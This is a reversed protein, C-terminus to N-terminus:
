KSVNPQGGFPKTMSLSSMGANLTHNPVKIHKYENLAATPPSRGMSREHSLTALFRDRLVSRRLYYTGGWALGWTLDSRLENVM